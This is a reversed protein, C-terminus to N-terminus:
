RGFLIETFGFEGKAPNFREQALEIRRQLENRNRQREAEKIQAPIMPRITPTTTQPTIRRGPSAIGTRPSTGITQRFKDVIGEGAQQRVVENIAQGAAVGTMGLGVGAAVPALAPAAAIAGAAALATPVGSVVDGAMRTAGGKVDGAYFSQIAEPSPILDAAGISLGGRFGAGLNGRGELINRGILYNRTGVAKQFPTFDSAPKIGVASPRTGGSVQQFFESYPQLPLLREKGTTFRQVDKSGGGYGSSFSQSSVPGAMGAKEYLEARWDPNASSSQRVPTLTSTGGFQGQTEFIRNKFDSLVKEKINQPKETIYGREKWTTPTQPQGSYEGIYPSRSIIENRLEEFNEPSRRPGEKLWNLEKEVRDQINPGTAFSYDFGASTPVRFDSLFQKAAPTLSGSGFDKPLAGFTMQWPRGTEPSNLGPIDKTSYSYGIEQDIGGVSSEKRGTTPRVRTSRNSADIADLLDKDTEPIGKRGVVNGEGYFDLIEQDTTTDRLYKTLYDGVKRGVESGANGFFSSLPV